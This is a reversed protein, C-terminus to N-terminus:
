LKNNKTTMLIPHFTCQEIEKLEKIRLQKIAKEKSLKMKLQNREAITMKAWKSNKAIQRSKKNLEPQKNFYLNVKFTPKEIANKKINRGYELIINKDPITIMDYLIFSAEIFEELNLKRESKIM